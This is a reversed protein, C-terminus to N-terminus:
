IEGGDNQWFSDLGYLSFVWTYKIEYSFQIDNYCWYLYRQTFQHFLQLHMQMKDNYPHLNTKYLKHLM